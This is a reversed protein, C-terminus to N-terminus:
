PRSPRRRYRSGVRADPTPLSRAVVTPPSERRRRRRNRSWWLALFALAGVSLVIGVGSVATSRLTVEHSALVFGGDPTAVSIRVAFDGSRSVRFPIELDETAGPPLIARVPDGLMALEASEASVAVELSRNSTNRLTVPLRARHSTITLDGGDALEVGGLSQRMVAEVETVYRAREGHGISRRGAVLLSRRLEAVQPDSVGVTAEFSAIRGRLRALDDVITSVDVVPPPPQAVAVGEASQTPLESAVVPEFAGPEGLARLLTTLTTLTTLDGGAPEPAFLVMPSGGGGIADAALAALLHNAQLVPNDGAAPLPADVAAAAYARNATPLGDLYLPTTSGALGGGPVHPTLLFRNVGRAALWGLLIPSDGADVVWTAGDPPRGLFSTLTSTGAAFQEVLDPDLLTGAWAGADVDAYPSHLVGGRRGVSALVDRAAAGGPANGLATVLGPEIALTVPVEPYADLTTALAAIRAVDEVAVTVGAGPTWHLPAAVPVVLAVDTPAAGEALRSLYTVAEWTEGEEPLLELLVPYVGPDLHLLEPDGTGLPIRLTATSAGEPVAVEYTAWRYRRSPDELERVEAGDEMVRFVRARLRGAPYGDPLRVRVAYEGEAAVWPTLDEVQPEAADPTQAGAMAEGAGALVATGLLTVVLALRGVLGLLPGPRAGGRGRPRSM